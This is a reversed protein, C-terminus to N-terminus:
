SSPKANLVFQLANQIEEYRRRSRSYAAELSEAELQSIHLRTEFHGLERNAEERQQKLSEILTEQIEHTM